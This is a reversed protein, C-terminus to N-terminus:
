SNVYDMTLVSWTWCKKGASFFLAFIWDFDLLFFVWNLESLYWSKMSIPYKGKGLLILRPWNMLCPLSGKHVSHLDTGLTREWGNGSIGAWWTIGFVWRSKLWPIYITSAGSRLWEYLLPFWELSWLTHQSVLLSNFFFCLFCDTQDNRCFFFFWKLLGLVCTESGM